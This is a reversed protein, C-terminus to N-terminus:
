GKMVREVGNQSRIGFPSVPVGLRVESASAVNEEHAPCGSCNHVAHPFLDTFHHGWCTNNDSLMGTMVSFDEAVKQIEKERLAELEKRMEAQDQLLTPQDLRVWMHYNGGQGPDYELDVLEILRYRILLLVVNINWNRNLLGRREKQEPSFHEPPNDMDLLVVDNDQSVGRTLMSFWRSVMNDVSLVVESVRRRDARSRILISLSPRGDRGGRGVEQYFRNVSEPVSAHIVTRVNSKDVGMGFASTALVVDIDDQNWRTIIENRERNCTVGTFSAICVFGEKRLLAKWKEADDPCNEYIIMPKPLVRAYHLVLERKEATSHIKNLSYRPESRLSDFRLSVFRGDDSFLRELLEETEQTITASLLFTRLVGSVTELLRRRLVSLLQFDPRFDSGWDQVIHAEDIILNRLYGSESADIITKRLMGNRLLAEPSVILLRIKRSSLRILVEQKERPSLTGGFYLIESSHFGLLVEKAQRQQDIGLSITPVVCVTLGPSTAALMHTVLSKGAGTPLTTMLTYGAPLNLATHVAVKQAFSRYGEYGTIETLLKDGPSITTERKPVSVKGYVQYLFSENIREGLSNLEANVFGGSETFIGFARGRSEVLELLQEPVVLRGVYMIFDRLAALLDGTGATCELYMFWRRLFRKVYRYRVLDNTKQCHQRLESLLDKKAQRGFLVDSVKKTLM